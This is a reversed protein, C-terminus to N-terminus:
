LMITSINLKLIDFSFMYITVNGELKFYKIEDIGLCCIREKQSPMVKCKGCFCWSQLDEGIQDNKLLETNDEIVEESSDSTEGECYDAIEPEYQFGIIDTNEM